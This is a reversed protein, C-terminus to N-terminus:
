EMRIVLPLHITHVDGYYARLSVTHTWVPIGAELLDLTAVAEQWGFVLRDPDVSLAPADSTVGTATGIAVWDEECTLTWTLMEPARLTVPRSLVTTAAADVMFTMAEPAIELPAAVAAQLAHYPGSSGAPRYDVLAAGHLNPWDVDVLSATTMSFTGSEGDSLATEGGLSTSEAARVFRQTEGLDGGEEYVLAHVTAANTANLDQGSHNTILIRFTMTDGSRKMYAAIDAQPPNALANDVMAKYVTYFDEYGYSYQYGSDVMVLPLKVSTGEDYAAWWRNYRNGVPWDVSQELFVVPQDAYEEALRDIQPAAAQCIGCVPRLFGEFVVLREMEAQTTGHDPPTHSQALVPFPVSILFLLGIFLQIRPM